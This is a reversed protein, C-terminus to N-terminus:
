EALMTQTIRYVFFLLRVHGVLKRVFGGHHDVHGYLDTTHLSCVLDGCRRCHDFLGLSESYPIVNDQRGHIIFLQGRLNCLRVHPSAEAASERFEAIALEAAAALMAEDGTEMRELIARGAPSLIAVQGSIEEPRQYLQLRIIERIPAYDPDSPPLVLHLYNYLFIRRAFESPKGPCEAAKRELCGTAIFRLMRAYDHFPAFAISFSLREAMGPRTAAGLGLGGSISLGFLGLRDARVDPLGAMHDFAAAIRDGIDPTWRYEFLESLDPVSVVMGMGALLRALGVIYPDELGLRDFGPMLLVAPWPGEGMQPRYLDVDLAWGASSHARHRSRRVPQAVFKLLRPEHDAHSLGDVLYVSRLLAGSNVNALALSLGAVLAVGLAYLWGRPHRRFILRRDRMGRGTDGAKPVAEDRVRGIDM